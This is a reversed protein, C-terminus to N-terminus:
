LMETLSKDFAKYGNSRVDDTLTDKLAIVNFKLCENLHLYHILLDIVRLSLNQNDASSITEWREYLLSDLALIIFIGSCITLYFALIM